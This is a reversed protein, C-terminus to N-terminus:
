FRHFRAAVEDWSLASASTLAAIASEPLKGFYEAIAGSQMFARIQIRSPMSRAPLQCFAVTQDLLLELRLDSWFRRGHDGVLQGRYSLGLATAVASQGGHRQVAGRVAPPLQEQYPMVGPEGLLAALRPLFQRLPELDHWYGRGARQENNVLVRFHLDWEVEPVGLGLDAYVGLRRALSLGLVEARLARIKPEAPEDAEDEDTCFPLRGLDDIWQRLQGTRLQQLQGKLLEKCALVLDGAPFGFAKEAKQVQGRVAERSCRSPSADGIQQLSYGSLRLLLCALSRPSRRLKIHMGRLWSTSTQAQEILLAYRLIVQQQLANGVLPSLPAMAAAQVAAEAVLEFVEQLQHIEDLRARLGSYRELTLAQLTRLIRETDAGNSPATLLAVARDVWEQAQQREASQDIGLSWGIPQELPAPLPPLVFGDALSFPLDLGRRDLMAQVELFAGTGFGRRGLLSSETRGALHALCHIDQRRLQNFTRLTLGLEILPAVLPDGDLHPWTQLSPQLALLPRFLVLCRKMTLSLSSLDPATTGHGAIQELVEAMAACAQPHRTLGVLAQQLELLQPQSWESLRALSQPTSLFLEPNLGQERWQSLLAQHSQALRNLLEQRPDAGNNDAYFSPPAILCTM